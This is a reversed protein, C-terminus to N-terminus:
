LKTHSLEGRGWWFLDGKGRNQGGFGDKQIYINVYIYKNIDVRM